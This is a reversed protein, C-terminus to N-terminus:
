SARVVVQGHEGRHHTFCLWRIEFPKSYDEHHAQAADGCIECPQRQLRGDRIANTVAYRAKYKEPNRLNHLREYERKIERRAVNRGQEYDSYQERRNAYNAKVDRKACEKCKGLHGDAMKPHRYFEEVPKEERCKFCTKTQMMQM